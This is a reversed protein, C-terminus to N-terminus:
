YNQGTLKEFAKISKQQITEIDQKTQNLESSVTNLQTKSAQLETELQGMQVASESLKRNYFQQMVMNTRAMKEVQIKRDIYLWLSCLFAVLLLIAVGAQILRRVLLNNGSYSNTNLSAAYVTDDAGYLEDIQKPESVEEALRIEEEIKALSLDKDQLQLETAFVTEFPDSSEITKKTKVAEKNSNIVQKKAVEQMQRDPEASFISLASKNKIQLKDALIHHAENIEKTVLDSLIEEASRGTIESSRQVMKKILQVISGPKIIRDGDKIVGSTKCQPSIRKVLESLKQTYCASAQQPNQMTSELATDRPPLDVVYVKGKAKRLQLVGLRGLREVIEVSVGERAAYQSIPVLPRDLQLIPGANQDHFEISEDIEDTQCDHNKITEM